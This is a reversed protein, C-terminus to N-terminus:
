WRSRKARVAVVVGAVILGIVVLIILVGAVSELLHAAFYLALAVVFVTAAVRRASSQWGGQGDSM